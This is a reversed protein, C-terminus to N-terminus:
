AKDGEMPEADPCRVSSTCTSDPGPALRGDDDIGSQRHDQPIGSDMRDIGPEAGGACASAVALLLAATTVGRSGRLVARHRIPRLRSRGHGNPERIGTLTQHLDGKTVDSSDFSVTGYSCM